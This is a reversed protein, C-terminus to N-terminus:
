LTHLQVSFFMASKLSSDKFLKTQQTPKQNTDSFKYKPLTGLIGLISLFPESHRIHKYLYHPKYQVDAKRRPTRFKPVHQISPAQTVLGQYFSQYQSQHAKRTSLTIYIYHFSTGLPVSCMRYEENLLSEQLSTEPKRQVEGWM